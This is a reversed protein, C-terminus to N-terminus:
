KKEKKDSVKDELYSDREHYPIDGINSEIGEEDLQREYDEEKKSDSARPNRGEMDSVAFGEYDEPYGDDDANGDGMSNYDEMKGYYDSPTESTGYKAVDEFSDIDDNILHNDRLRQFSDRHSPELVDEEVSRDESITREKTHDICYLSSPIVELREFPIDKGCERCKGYSGDEMAELAMNVKSLEKSNHEELAVDKEKEFIETALDAPHNDVSNLEGVSDSISDDSPDQMEVQHELDKKMSILEEKLQKTQEQSLM